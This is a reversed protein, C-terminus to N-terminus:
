LKVKTLSSLRWCKKLPLSMKLTNEIPCLNLIPVLWSKIAATAVDFKKYKNIKIHDFVNAM